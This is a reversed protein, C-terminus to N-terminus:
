SDRVVFRPLITKHTKQAGKPEERGGGRKEEVALNAVEGGIELRGAEGERRKEQDGGTKRQAVADRRHTKEKKPCEKQRGPAGVPGPHRPFRQAPEDRKEHDRRGDRSPKVVKTTPAPKM